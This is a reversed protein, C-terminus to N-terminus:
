TPTEVSRQAEEAAIEYAVLLVLVWSPGLQLDQLTWPSRHIQVALLLCCVYLYNTCVSYNLIPM